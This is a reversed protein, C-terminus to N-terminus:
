TETHLYPDLKSWIKDWFTIVDAGTWHHSPRLFNMEEAFIKLKSMVKSM